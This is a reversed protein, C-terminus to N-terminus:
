AYARREPDGGDAGQEPNEPHHEGRHPLQALDLLACATVDRYRMADIRQAPTKPRSIALGNAFIMWRNGGSTVPVTIVM